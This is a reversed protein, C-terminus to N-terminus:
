EVIQRELIDTGAGESVSLTRHTGYDVIYALANDQRSSTHSRTESQSYVPTKKDVTVLNVGGNPSRVRLRMVDAKNRFESATRVSRSATNTTSFLEKFMEDLTDGMGLTFSNNM